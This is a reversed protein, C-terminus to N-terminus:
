RVALAARGTESIVWRRQEDRVIWDRNILARVTNGHVRMVATAGSRAYVFSSIESIAGSPISGGAALVGLVSRQAPTPDLPRRCAACDVPAGEEERWQDLDKIQRGCVTFFGYLSGDEASGAAYIAHVKQLRTPLYRISIIM